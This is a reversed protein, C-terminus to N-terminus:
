IVTSNAVVDVTVMNKVHTDKLIFNELTKKFINWEKKRTDIQLKTFSGSDGGTIMDVAWFSSRLTQPVELIKLIRRNQLEEPKIHVSYRRLINSMDLNVVHNKNYFDEAWKRWDEEVTEPMIVHFDIEDIDYVVGDLEAQKIELKKEGLPKLFNEYYGYALSASPLMQIRNLKEEQKMKDYILNCANGVSKRM